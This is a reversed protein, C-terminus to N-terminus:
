SSVEAVEKRVFGKISDSRKRWKKTPRGNEIHELERWFLRRLTVIGLDSSGLIEENRDVIVGQGRVAVYDQAFTLGVLKDEPDPYRTGKFLEDAHETSQYGGFRNMHDLFRQDAEPTTRPISWLFFRTANYDDNPVAWVGIDIWPDGKAVGPVNICNNNPFTWNSKRVSDPRTATQELGADNEQYSLQPIANSVEEGFPGVWFGQHAFSVHVADLSNEIQQFWNCDWPEELAVVIRDEGEWSDKRPLEFEDPEGPGMWAFVLGSYERVHYGPIRINPTASDKEAPRHVCQGTPAFRWGHYHCAIEEGMVRGTHLLTRRHACRGGVLHLNGSEGRYLTLEEGLVRLGVARGVEVSRSLAVPHWFQRLLIGMPTDHGCQTLAAYKDARSPNARQGAGTSAHM